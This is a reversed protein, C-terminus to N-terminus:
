CNGRMSGASGEEYQIEVLRLGRAPATQSAAQRDLAQLMEQVHEPPFAGIGAQILTGAIIRVMNYLFGNGSVRIKVMSGEKTVDLDYVTRVTTM